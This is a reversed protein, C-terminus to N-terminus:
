FAISKILNLKFLLSGFPDKSMLWAQLNQLYKHFDLKNNAHLKSWLTLYYCTEKEGEIAKSNVKWYWDKILSTRFHAWCNVKTRMSFQNCSTMTYFPRMKVKGLWPLDHDNSNNTQITDVHEFWDENSASQISKHDLISRM